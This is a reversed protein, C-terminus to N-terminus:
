GEMLDTLTRSVPILTIGAALDELAFREERGALQEEGFVGRGQLWTDSEPAQPAGDYEQAYGAFRGFDWQEVIPLGSRQKRLGRAAAWQDLLVDALRRLGEDHPLQAGQFTFVVGNRVM